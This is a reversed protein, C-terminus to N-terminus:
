KLQYPIQRHSRTDHRHTPVSPQTSLVPRLIIGLCAPHPIAAIASATKIVPQLSDDGNRKPESRRVSVDSGLGAGARAMRLGGEVAALSKSSWTLGAVKTAGM